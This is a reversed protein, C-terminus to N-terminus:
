RVPRITGLYWRQDYPHCSGVHFRVFRAAEVTTREDRLRLLPRGRAGGGNQDPLRGRGKEGINGSTQYEFRFLSAHGVESAQELRKRERPAFEPGLENQPFDIIWIEFARRNAHWNARKARRPLERHHTQRWETQPVSNHRAFRCCPRPPRVARFGSCASDLRIKPLM